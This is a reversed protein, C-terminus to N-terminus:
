ATRGGPLRDRRDYWPRIAPRRQPTGTQDPDSAPGANPTIVVRHINCPAAARHPRAATHAQLAVSVLSVLLTIDGDCDLHVTVWASEPYLRVASSHSLEPQLRHIVPPTLHLDADHGSHFHVIESGATRLAQGIDCAPSASTIGPWTGLQEMARRAANM